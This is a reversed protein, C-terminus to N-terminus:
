KHGLKNLEHIYTQVLAILMKQHDASLGKLPIVRDSEMDLLYDCTVKFYLALHKLNDASPDTIGNEWNKVSKVSLSLKKALQAQSLGQKKRLEAIREGIM